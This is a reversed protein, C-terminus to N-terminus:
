GGLGPTEGHMTFEIGKIKRDALDIAIFGNINDWFGQGFFSCVVLGGTSGKLRYSEIGSDKFAPDAVIKEDFYGPIQADTLNVTESALGFLDIVVFQRAVLKNAAIRDALVANVGSVLITFIATVAVTFLVTKLKEKM